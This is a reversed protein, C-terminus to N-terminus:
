RSRQMSVAQAALLGAVSEATPVGTGWGAEGDAPADLAVEWACAVGVMARVGGGAPDAVAAPTGTATVGAAVRTTAGDPCILRGAPNPMETNAPPRLAGRLM